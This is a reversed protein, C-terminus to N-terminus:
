LFILVLKKRIIITDNRYLRYGYQCGRGYNEQQVVHENDKVNNTYIIKIAEFLSVDIRSSRNM